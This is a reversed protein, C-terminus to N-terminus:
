QKNSELLAGLMDTYASLFRESKENECDPNGCRVTLAVFESASNGALGETFQLFKGKLDSNTYENGIKYIHFVLYGHYDANVHAWKILNDGEYAGVDVVTEEPAVRNKYYIMEKGQSQRYYSLVSFELLSESTNKRWYRSEDWHRYNLELVSEMVQTWGPLDWNTKRTQSQVNLSHEYAARVPLVALFFLSLAVVAVLKIKNGVVLTGAHTVSEQEVLETRIDKDKCGLLQFKRFVIFYFVLFAAYVVWGFFVHDRMLDSKMQSYYGILVLLIVRVWNAVVSLAVALLVSVVYEFRNVANQQANYLGIVVGIMFYNLGSCGGAVEVLGYPLHIVYGDIFAPIDLILLPQQSVKMTAYRLMPQLVDWFPLALYFFVFPFALRAILNWGFMALLMAYLIIPLAFQTVLAIQTAYGFYWIMGSFLAIPIAWLTTKFQIRPDCLAVAIWYIALLVIFYGHSYHEDFKMWKEHLTILTSQFLLVLLALSIAFGTLKVLASKSLPVKFVPLKLVPVKLITAEFLQKRLAAM